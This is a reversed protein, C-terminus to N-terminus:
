KPELRAPPPKTPPNTIINGQVPIEHTPDWDSTADEGFRDRYMKRAEADLPQMGRSPPRAQGAKVGIKPIDREYRWTHVAGEAGPVADGVISEKPLTRDDVYHDIELLFRM